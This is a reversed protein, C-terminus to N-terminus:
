LIIRWGRSATRRDDVTVDVYDGGGAIDKLRGIAAKDRARLDARIFL